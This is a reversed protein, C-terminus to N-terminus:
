LVHHGGQHNSHHSHHQHQHHGGHGGPHNAEIKKTFLGFAMFALLSKIKIKTTIM